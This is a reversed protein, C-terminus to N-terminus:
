TESTAAEQVLADILEIFGHMGMSEILTRAEGLSQQARARDGSQNRSLLMRAHWYRVRAEDVRFPLNEALDLAKQFHKEASPWDRAAAAAMGAFREHLGYTFSHRSIGSNVVQPNAFYCFEFIPKAPYDSRTQIM